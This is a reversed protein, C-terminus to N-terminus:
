EVSVVADYVAPYERLKARGVLAYLYAKLRERWLPRQYNGAFGVKAVQLDEVARKVQRTLLPPPDSGVVSRYTARARRKEALTHGSDFGEDDPGVVLRDLAFEHARRQAVAKSTEVARHTLLGDSDDWGFRYDSDFCWMALRSRAFGYPGYRGDDDVEDLYSSRIEGRSPLAEIEARFEGTASRLHDAYDTTDGTDGDLREALLDRFREATRVHLRGQLLRGTLTGVDRPSYEEAEPGNADDVGNRAAEMAETGWDADFRAFVLDREIRYYWALDRGPDSVPYPDLDAALADVRDLLGFGRDALSGLDARGLRARAVGLSEGAFQLGYGAEFLADHYKAEGLSERANELWGGAGLFHEDTDTREWLREGESVTDALLDVAERAHGETVTPRWLATIEPPTPYLKTATDTLLDPLTTPSEAGVALTGGAVLGATAVGGLLRRRSIAPRDADDADDTDNSPVSPDSVM